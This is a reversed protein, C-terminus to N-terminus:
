KLRIESYETAPAEPPEGEKRHLRSFDISAYNLEDPEAPSPPAGQVGKSRHAAPAKHHMPITAINSYILSTNDATHEGQNGNAMEETETIPPAPRRSRLRIVCLGLFFLGLAVGLGCAVGVGLLNGPDKAGGQPPSLEFHLAAYMGHRNSGLCFISASGRAGSGAWSLTSVAEDRQAWSSVQLAGRSSNGALFQGNVQWQLQPPPQSRLSCTCTINPGRHQCSSNQGTGPRPSYEILLQFTGYDSSEESQARCRYLGGDEATVNPLELWLPNERGRHTGEIDLGLREWSLNAPSCSPLSCLFRLSDGVQASLQSGNTVLTGPDPFQQPGSSNARSVSIQLSRLPSQVLVHLSRNASGYINVARCQYEGTDGPSLNPLELWGAREQGPSLSENGKAWSLTAQPNSEAACGLSLSDGECPELSVVDGEAGWALPEPRGNRTLTINPPGPPYVIRLQLTRSTSPGWEPGYTVTCVLEKGNDGPSPTFSLASGHAWSGNQLRASVDRATDSFPGTWTVRPPTGACRGPATCTVNVPEGALLKGPLGRVPSTRIEPQATLGPVSISLVTSTGDSNYRYSYKLDGKEMRFVYTETNARRADSIQLSCDGRAPDGALRFRGLTDQSVPRRPDSSAVPPDSNPNAGARFWHGNLPASRDGTFDDPYRFTFSCPVLACLGAQVSVWRQAKLEFGYLQSLSGRWLLALILSRLLAVPSTASGARQPIGQAPLEQDRTDKQPPLAGAMAPTHPQGLGMRNCVSIGPSYLRKLEKIKKLQLELRASREEAEAIKETHKAELKQKRQEPLLCFEEVEQKYKLQLRRVPDQVGMEEAADRAVLLSRLEPKSAKERVETDRELCLVKLAKKDLSEYQQLSMAADVTSRSVSSGRGGSRDKRRSRHCCCPTRRYYLWTLYYALFLGTVMLVFKCSIEILTRTRDCQVLVRLARSASGYPNEARCRYEGADEPSLSPLELWGAGGQGPSLSENGKAWSLTAQPSSKAACDLSLSDGECSELSVVDGEAGWTLPETRGNRTLTISPPGPPYVIRLQLTTRTSPGREPSYTVTCGLEKGDDGPGPTFSLASGHAWSGNELRASVDRATDSFPGTWTVRPPTGACRGPATCTVNVPEGALLKEPRGGAPSTRIEPQATLGPVSISLETSTYDSNTYSYKLTGKEMRFFYSGRDAGRADSIQLSCDGRAPDGALRFRGRTDSSVSQSPDSSAVPPDSYVNAGARFWHGYLPGRLDGAFNDRYTFSCPVLACLGEQVSVSRPATLEFGSAQSLSGRWLLALILARLLAVPSTAGGARQPIGQASLEQDRTDKQLPLARSMAPTHPQGLGVRNCVSIGPSYLRKLEKIKKLQLELRASREEAEAIKETLESELKQKRQEPLLCFEEVEQKYKLQLRRVPDQVGMEEAADRAVLLSRLEPKSAKERVETDRELCLVKLAKKDLSEFQQLSM